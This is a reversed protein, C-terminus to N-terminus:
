WAVSRANSAGSKLTLVSGCTEVISIGLWNESKTMGILEAPLASLVNQDKKKRTRSLTVVITFADEPHEHINALAKFGPFDYAHHLRTIKM